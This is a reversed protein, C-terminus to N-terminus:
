RYDFRLSSLRACVNGARVDTIQSKKTHSAVALAGDTHEFPQDGGSRQSVCIHERPRIGSKRASPLLLCRTHDRLIRHAIIPGVKAAEVGRALGVAASACLAQCVRYIVHQVRAHVVGVRQGCPCRWVSDASCLREFFFRRACMKRPIM